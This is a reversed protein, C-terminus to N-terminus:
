VVSKRDSSFSGCTAASNGPTCSWTVGRNASDNAVTATIAQTAGVQLSTPVVSLTVTIPPTSSSSCAVLAAIMSLSILLLISKRYTM